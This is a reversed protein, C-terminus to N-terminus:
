IGTESWFLTKLPEDERGRRREQLNYKTKLEGPQQVWLQKGNGSCNILVPNIISKDGIEYILIRRDLILPGKSGGDWAMGDRWCPWAALCEQIWTAYATRTNFVPQPPSLHLVLCADYSQHSSNHSPRLWWKLPGTLGSEHQPALPVHSSSSPKPGSARCWLWAWSKLYEEEFGAEIPYHEHLIFQPSLAPKSLFIDYYLFCSSIGSTKELLGCAAQM